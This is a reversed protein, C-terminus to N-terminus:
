KAVWGSQACLWLNGTAADAKMRGYEESADCDAAPPQGTTLGTSIYGDTFIDGARVCLEAAYPCGAAEPTYILPQRTLIMQGLSADYFWNKRWNDRSNDAKYIFDLEYRGYGDMQIFSSGALELAPVLQGKVRIWWEKGGDQGPYDIWTREQAYLVCGSHQGEDFGDWVCNTNAGPGWYSTRLINPNKTAGNPDSNIATTGAWAYNLNNSIGYAFDPRQNQVLINTMTSDGRVVVRDRLVGLQDTTAFGANPPDYAEATAWLLALIVVLCVLIAKM